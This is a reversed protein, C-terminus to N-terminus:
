FVNTMIFFFFLVVDAKSLIRGKTKWFLNWGFYDCLVCFTDTQHVAPSKYFHLSASGHWSWSVFCLLWFSWSSCLWLSSTFRKDGTCLHREPGQSMGGIWMTSRIVHRPEWLPVLRMPWVYNVLSHGQGPGNCACCKQTGFPCWCFCKEVTTWCLAKFPCDGSQCGVSGNSGSVFWPSSHIGPITSFLM